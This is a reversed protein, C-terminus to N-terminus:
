FLKNINKICILNKYRFSESDITKNINDIYKLKNYKKFYRFKIGKIKSKFNNKNYCTYINLDKHNFNNNFLETSNGCIIFKVNNEIARKIAKKNKLLKKKIIDIAEKKYNGFYYINDKSFYMKEDKKINNIFQKNIFNDDLLEEEIVKIM